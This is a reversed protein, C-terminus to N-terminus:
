QKELFNENLLYSIKPVEQIFAKDHSVSIICGDFDSLLKRVIPQSTPSFHRTPEDLILIHNKALTMHALFLKAKQGGSLENTPHEMEFRTFQLSGLITRADTETSVERLFDIANMEKPLFNDYDQPM